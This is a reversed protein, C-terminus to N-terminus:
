RILEFREVQTRACPLNLFANGNAFTLSGGHVEAMRQALRIGFENGQGAPDPCTLTLHAFGDQPGALHAEITGLSGASTAAIGILRQLLHHLDRGPVAVDMPMDAGVVRLEIGADGNEGPACDGEFGALMEALDSIGEGRTIAGTDLKAAIDLDDIMQGLRRADTVISTALARYHGAVPGFYQGEILQAFGNIANLPSRLEHALQRMGDAVPRSPIVQEVTGTPAGRQDDSAFSIKGQYGTFRGSERDFQADADILWCGSWPGNGNLQMRGGRIDGRKVFLRAVAADVGAEGAQAPIGCQLGVFAARPLGSVARLWGDSDILIAHGDNEVSSATETVVRSKGNGPLTPRRRYAEIREVLEAINSGATASVGAVPPMNPETRPVVSDAPPLSFDVPGLSALARSVLLSLDTRARLRSRALPSLAPLIALWDEDELRIRDFMAITINPEDTGILVALPAFRCRSAISLATELRIAKSVHPRLVSLAALGRASDTETMEPGSQALMDAVQRWVAERERATRPQAMLVTALRDDFRAPVTSESMTM